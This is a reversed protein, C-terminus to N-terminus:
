VSAVIESWLRDIESDEVQRTASLRRFGALVQAVAPDDDHRAALARAVDALMRDRAEQRLEPLTYRAEDIEELLEVLSALVPTQDPAGVTDRVLACLLVLRLDRSPLACELWRVSQRISEETREGGLVSQIRRVLSIALGTWWFFDVCGVLEVVLDAFLAREEERAWVTEPHRERLLVALAGAVSQRTTAADTRGCLRAIAQEWAPVALAEDGPDALDAARDPPAARGAVMAALRRIRGIMSASRAMREFFAGPQEIVEAMIPDLQAAASQPVADIVAATMVVKDPWSDATRLLKAVIFTLECVDALGCRGTDLAAIGESAEDVTLRKLSHDTKAVERIMAILRTELTALREMCVSRPLDTKRSLVDVVRGIAARYDGDSRTFGRIADYSWLFEIPTIARLELYDFAFHAILRRATHQFLEVPHRCLVLEDFMARTIPRVRTPAAATAQVTCEVIPRAVGQSSVQVIALKRYGGSLRISDLFARAQAETEFVGCLEAAEEIQGTVEFHM